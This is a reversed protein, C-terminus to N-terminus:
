PARWDPGWAPDEALRRRLKELCRGRNPGISGTPIGLAAAVSDYNPRPVFAVIRLLDRCLQSLENVARWLAEQRENELLLDEPLAEQGPVDDLADAGVLDGTRDGARVRWAERRATTVLWEILAGPSNISHRHRLLTLWTTQVVDQATERGLGQSRAVHWLMPTLDDYLADWAGARGAQAEAFLRALRDRREPGRGASGEAPRALPDRTM